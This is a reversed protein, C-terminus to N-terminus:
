RHVRRPLVLPAPAQERDRYGEALDRRKAASESSAIHERVKDYEERHAKRVHQKLAHIGGDAHHEASAWDCWRCKASM